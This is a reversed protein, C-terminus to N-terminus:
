FVREFVDLRYEAERKGKLHRLHTPTLDFFSDHVQDGNLPYDRAYQTWHVLLLHGGPELHKLICQQAKKLDEWCWYYGVESVVTLDFMEDPYEQPLCMIEFRVQPLHQCRQIAKNQAIRSVDVSLLSDCRQALKETLVGISGGIEFGSHYRQKPLAAITATYKKNEYESTEFKWPDPNTGYLTEFYSAPLSNNQVQLPKHQNPISATDLAKLFSEFDIFDPIICEVGANELLPKQTDSAVGVFPLQLQIATLVDWIGDGICVIREFDPQDYFAKARSVATKVIDERSISDDAFAAPLQTIDLGAAQLKMEASARWGGTAIAIAWDKTQALHKLMVCAGAIEIFSAPTEIYHSHLLEVFCQQLQCLETTQPVRGWNHQFIQLAIGSDTTHGYTSWNTNIEKIKFENAFAQVFCQSDVDNTQTLTGDIDFIALKM